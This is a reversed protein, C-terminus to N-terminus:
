KAIWSGTIIELGHALTITYNYSNGSIIASSFYFSTATTNFGTVAGGDALTLGPSSSISICSSASVCQYVIPPQSLIASTLSISTINKANGQNLFSIALTANGRLNASSATGSYLTASALLALRVNACSCGTRYSGVAIVVATIAVVAVLSIVVGRPISRGISHNKGDRSPVSSYNRVWM